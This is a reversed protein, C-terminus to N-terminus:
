DTTKSASSVADLSDDDPLKDKAIVAGDTDYHIGKSLTENLGLATQWEQTPHHLKATIDTVLIKWVPINTMKEAHLAVPIDRVYNHIMTRLAHVKENNDDIRKVQGRGMISRFAPGFAGESPPTYTLAEHGGDAEFSIISEQDLAKGKDGNSTGHIYIVYQGDSTEEYGYNVPVVFTGEDNSLGLHLIKCHDLTWNIVSHDHYIENNM